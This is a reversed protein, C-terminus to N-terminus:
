QAGATPPAHARQHQWTQRLHPFAALATATLAALGGLALGWRPGAFQAVYGVIPGGIPTTGLFAVAWLAMVRGRMSQDSTMQLMTNGRSMFGVSCAGVMALTLVETALTPAAAAALMTLGFAGAAVALSRMGKPRRSAVALGGIVAGIGMAATFYGYADANGHFTQEALVPLVVQFEYSLAGILAMMLLPTFLRPTARVYRFGELLQGPAHVSKVAPHLLKPNMTALAIIVAVFSVTNFFFCAGVGVSVILVGALAPGVARAANVMSSNLSVANAVLEHGVIEPVFSQRAPNDVCNVLGLAGAIVIVMWLRVTHTMTLLGLTLALLAMASQTGMLVRRKSRRDVLVGAYPSLLLIPLTQVAAVLGLATASGTLQLVLWSQGITQMWTGVLSIAQGVVFRRYNGSAILSAFTRRRWGGTPRRGQSPVARTNRESQAMAQDDDCGYAGALPWRGGTLSALALGMGGLSEPM